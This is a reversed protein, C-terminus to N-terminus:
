CAVAAAVVVADKDDEDELLWLLPRLLAMDAGAEADDVAGVVDLADEDDPREDSRSM